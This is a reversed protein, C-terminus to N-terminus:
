KDNTEGRLPCDERRIYHRGFGLEYYLLPLGGNYKGNLRIICKGKYLSECSNPCFDPNNTNKKM